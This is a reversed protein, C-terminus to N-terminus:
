IQALGKKEQIPTSLLEYGKIAKYHSQAIGRFPFSSSFGLLPPSHSDCGGMIWLSVNTTNGVKLVLIFMWWWVKTLNLKMQRWCLSCVPSKARCINGLPLAATPASTIYDWQSIKAVTPPASCSISNLKEKRENSIVLKILESIQLSRSQGFFSCLVAYCGVISLLCLGCSRGAWSSLAGM